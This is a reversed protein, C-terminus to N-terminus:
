SHRPGQLEIFEVIWKLLVQEDKSEITAFVIGMGLEPRSYVIRGLASMETAGHILRVRVRAGRPFDSLAKIGCGFLGLDRTRGKVQNGSALDTVEIAVEFGYRPALREKDYDEM